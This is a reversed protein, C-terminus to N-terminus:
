KETGELGLARLQEIEIFATRQAARAALFDLRVARLVRQADLVEIFGREGFRYAAEAVRLADEAQRLLGSEFAQIQQTAVEHRAFAGNLATILEIRRSEALANAQTLQAQAEGIQGQRQNWIPIPVSLGVLFQNEDPSQGVGARLTPQPTRLARETELRAQARGVEARAQALSPYRELMDGRLTELPPLPPPPELTGIVAGMGTAPLGILALLQARAETVRLRASTTANAAGRAEADARTLELRPAEGVDVRVAIRRRIDELLRQTEAALDVEAQRRVVEYYALKVAARLALRSEQLAFRSGELGSEAARIRPERVSPLDIPQALGLIFVNGDRVDLERARQRGADFVTEPNPYARATLIASRAAETQAVAVALRPNNREALELARELTLTEAARAGLPLLACLAVVIFVTRL